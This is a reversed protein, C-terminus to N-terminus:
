AVLEPGADRSRAGHPSLPAEHTSQQSSQEVHSRAHRGAVPKRQMQRPAVTLKFDGGRIPLDPKRAVRGAHLLPVM